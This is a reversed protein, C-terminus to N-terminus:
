QLCMGYLFVSRLVFHIVIRAKLRKIEERTLLILDNKNKRGQIKKERPQKVWENQKKSNGKQLSPFYKFILQIILLKEEFLCHVKLVSSVM